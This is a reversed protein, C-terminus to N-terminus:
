HCATRGGDIVMSTGTIYSAAPSALFAVSQGIEELKGLRGLPVSNEWENRVQLLTKGQTKGTNEMLQTLRETDFFGPLINNVTIGSPALENALTKAWNAMAARTTNSVGLNPIPAKVSTSLVNLIRGYATEKMGPILLKTLLQSPFLHESFAKQFSETQAEQILGPAPGGSNNILIHIPGLKTLLPCINNELLKLDSIDQAIYHHKDSNKLSLQAEELKQKNRSLLIIQADLKSLEIAIALGIGQSSGCVLARKGKLNLNM